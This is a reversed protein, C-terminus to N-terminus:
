SVIKRSVAALVRKLPVFVLAHNDRKYVLGPAEIEVGRGSWFSGRAFVVDKGTKLQLVHVTFADGVLGPGSRHDAYVAVGAYADLNTAGNPVKWSRLRAGTRASYIELKRTQTLVLLSDGRLAIEKASSPTITRLLRGAASYIGVTSGEYVPVPPRPIRGLPRLVALRGSDAAWAIIGQPGSVVRRLGRTGLVDLGGSLFAGNPDASWRSVALVSGSGVLGDIWTGEPCDGVSCNEGRRYGEALKREHPKSLSSSYLVDNCESNGCGILIWAAHDRDVALARIHMWGDCANRASVRVRRGTLVNWIYIRDCGNEDNVAYALRPGDMAFTDIPNETPKVRPPPTKGAAAPVALALVLPVAVLLGWNFLRRM